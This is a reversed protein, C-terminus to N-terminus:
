QREGFSRHQVNTGGMGPAWNPDTYTLTYKHVELYTFSPLLRSVFSSSLVPAFFNARIPVERQGVREARHHM